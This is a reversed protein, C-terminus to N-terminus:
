LKVLDDEQFYDKDLTSIKFQLGRTTFYGDFTVEVKTNDISQDEIGQDKLVRFALTFTNTKYPYSLNLYVDRCLSHMKVISNNFNFCTECPIINGKFYLIPVGHIKKNVKLSVNSAYQFFSNLTVDISVYDDQLKKFLTLDFNSTSKTVVIDYGNDLVSLIKFPTNNCELNTNRYDAIYFNGIRNVTVSGVKDEKIKILSGSSYFYPDFKTFFKIDPYKNTKMFKDVYDNFTVYEVKLQIDDYYILSIDYDYKFVLSFGAYILCELPLLDSLIVTKGESDPLTTFTTLVKENCCISVSKFKISRDNNILEIRTINKRLEGELDLRYTNDTVKPYVKPLSIRFTKTHKSNINKLFFSHRIFGYAKFDMLNTDLISAGDTSANFNIPLESDFDTNSSFDTM